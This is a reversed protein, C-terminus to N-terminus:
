WGGSSGGGGFGGGGGSFGGGGSSWGGGSSGGSGWNWGSSGKKKSASTTGHRISQIIHWVITFLIICWIIIFIIAFINETVDNQGPAQPKSRMKLDEANGTLVAIIDSVGTKIGGPFDRDRFRPLIGNEIIIRSIADTLLSELRRGVEIRVKRENPAIILLVGNDKNKQGIGWHRGLKYGFEEIEFGQLSKLTVIVLQDSSKAELAELGATIQAIDESSLLGADDVVRGTLQPFQPDAAHAPAISAIWVAVLLSCVLLVM